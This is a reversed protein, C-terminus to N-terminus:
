STCFPITFTRWVPNDKTGDNVRGSREVTIGPKNFAAPICGLRANNKRQPIYEQFEQGFGLRLGGTYTGVFSIKKLASGPAALNALEAPIPGSLDNWGLALEVLNTLNGLSAPIRGSLSNANLRLSRLNTLNGLTSPIEGELFSHVLSLVELNSLNELEAPISGKLLSNNISLEKLNAMGGLEASLSAGLGSTDELFVESPIPDPLGCDTPTNRCRRGMGTWKLDNLILKELNKLKGLEPPLPGVLGLNNFTLERLNSLNGFEAPILGQTGTFEIWLRELASLSGLVEPIRGELVRSNAGDGFIKQLRNAESSSLLPFSLRIVQESRSCSGPEWINEGNTCWGQPGIYLDTVRNNTLTIGTWPLTPVSGQRTGWLNLSGSLLGSNGELAGTASTLVECDRFLGLNSAVNPVTPTNPAADGLCVRNHQGMNFPSSYAASGEAASEYILYRARPIWVQDDIGYVRLAFELNGSSLRRARISALTSDSGSRLIVAESNYWSGIRSAAREYPFYRNTVSVNVGSSSGAAYVAVGFEVNGSALKRAWVRALPGESSQASIPSVSLGASALSVVLVVCLAAWGRKRGRPSGERLSVRRSLSIKNFFERVELKHSRTIRM